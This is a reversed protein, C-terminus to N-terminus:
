SLHNQHLRPDKISRKALISGKNNEKVTNIENMIGIGIQDVRRDKNNRNKKDSNNEIEKERSNKRESSYNEKLRKKAIEKGRGRKKEIMGEYGKGRGAKEEVILKPMAIIVQRAALHARCLQATYRRQAAGAGHNAM